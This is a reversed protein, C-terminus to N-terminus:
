DRGDTMVETRCVLDDGVTYPAPEDHTQEQLFTMTPGTPGAKPHKKLVDLVRATQKVSPVSLGFGPQFPGAGLKSRSISPFADIPHNRVLLVPNALLNGHSGREEPTM